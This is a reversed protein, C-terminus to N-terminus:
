IDKNTIRKFIRRRLRHGAADAADAAVIGVPGSGAGPGGGGGGGAPGGKVTLRGLTPGAWETLSHGQAHGWAGRVATATIIQGDGGTWDQWDAIV